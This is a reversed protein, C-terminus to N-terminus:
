MHMLTLTAARSSSSSGLSKLCLQHVPRFCASNANLCADTRQEAETTLRVQVVNDAGLEEIAEFLCSAIYEATKTRGSTDIAILFKSGKPNVALVNLLPRNVADSWGDSCITSATTKLREEWPKLQQETRQVADDLLTTRVTNYSPPKYGPTKQVAAIFRKLYKSKVLSM